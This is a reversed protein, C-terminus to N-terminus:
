QGGSNGRTHCRCPAASDPVYVYTRRTCAQQQGVVVSCVRALFRMHLGTVGFAFYSGASSERAKHGKFKTHNIRLWRHVNGCSVIFATLLGGM